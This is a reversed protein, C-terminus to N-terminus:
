EIISFGGCLYFQVPDHFSELFFVILNLQTSFRRSCSTSNSRSSWIIITNILSFLFFKGNLPYQQELPHLLLFHFSLCLVPVKSSFRFFIHFLFTVTVGITTPASPVTWLLKSRPSSFVPFYLFFRSLCAFDQVIFSSIASFLFGWSLYQDSKIAACVLAM